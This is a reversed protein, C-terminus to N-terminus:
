FAREILANLEAPETPWDPLIGSNKHNTHRRFSYVKKFDTTKVGGIYKQEETTVYGSVSKGKVKVSAPISFFTDATQAISGVARIKGDACLVRTGRRVNIGWPMKVALNTKGFQM